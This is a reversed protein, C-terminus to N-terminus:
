RSSAGGKWHKNMEEDLKDWQVRFATELRKVVEQMLRGQIAKILEIPFREPENFAIGVLYKSLRHFYGEELDIEPSDYTFGM